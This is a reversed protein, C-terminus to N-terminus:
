LAIADMYGETVIVAERKGVEVRALHWAYLTRSKNFLTGEPSNIYKADPTGTNGGELARGGFAIVRGRAAGVRSPWRRRSAAPAPEPPPPRTSAARPPAGASRSSVARRM